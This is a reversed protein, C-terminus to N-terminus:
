VNMADCEKLKDILRNIEVTCDKIMRLIEDRSMKEREEYEFCCDDAEMFDAANDSAINCCVRGGSYEELIWYECTGCTHKVM